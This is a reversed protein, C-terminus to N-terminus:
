AKCIELAEPSRGADMRHVRDTCGGRTQAVCLKEGRRQDLGVPNAEERTPQCVPFLQSRSETRGESCPQSYEWAVSQSESMAPLATSITWPIKAM